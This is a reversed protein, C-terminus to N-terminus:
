WEIEKEGRLRLYENAKLFQGSNFFGRYASLPSPHASRIILHRQGDILGAKKQAQNGWLFFVVGQRRDNVLSIIKDTFRQWGWAAHSNAKGEEVTLVTNLLLVGQRAWRMLSGSEPMPCGTESSVEKLINKLSPPWRKGPMLSCSFSLGEAEGQEHYPDQGLIVAKIGDIPCANLAAFIKEKPPFCTRQSYAAEVRQWLSQFYPKEMEPRLLAAWEKNIYTEMRNAFNIFFIRALVSM